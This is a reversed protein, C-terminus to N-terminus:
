KGVYSLNQFLVTTLNDRGIGALMGQANESTLGDIADHQRVILPISLGEAQAVLDAMNLRIEGNQEQRLM